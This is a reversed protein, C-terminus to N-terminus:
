SSIASTPAADPTGTRAMEAVVREWMRDTQHKLRTASDRIRQKLPQIASPASLTEILQALLSLDKMDGILLEPVGFDSFLEPYKHSWGAGICPIGQSMTSVLGHFRSGIAFQCKGLVYKLVRPDYHTIAPIECGRENLIAVLRRDDKSDHLLFHPNGRRKKLESIAATLFDLYGARDAGKDIMRYNPIIATFHEPLELQPDPQPTVTLTFDPCQHLYNAEGVLSKVAKLSSTDRAFVLTARQFLKRAAEAVDSTQFPGLAQPLLILPKERRSPLNMKQLLGRAPASGWQDSFAFGSADLVIDIEAPAVLGFPKAIQPLMKASLFSAARGRLSRGFEATSYFQYRCRDFAHGFGLPVVIRVDPFQSHLRESIAIAM